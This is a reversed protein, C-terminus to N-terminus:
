SASSGCLEAVIPRLRELDDRMSKWFILEASSSSDPNKELKDIKKALMAVTERYEADPLRVILCNAWCVIYPNYAYRYWQPLVAFFPESLPENETQHVAIIM